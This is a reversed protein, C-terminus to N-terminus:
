FFVFPQVFGRVSLGLRMSRNAGGYCTSVEDTIFFLYLDRELQPLLM